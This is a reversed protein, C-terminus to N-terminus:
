RRLYYPAVLPESYRNQIPNKYAIEIVSRFTIGTQAFPHGYAIADAAWSRVGTSSNSHQVAIVSQSLFKPAPGSIESDSMTGVSDFHRNQLPAEHAIEIAARVVIQSKGMLYSLRHVLVYAGRHLNTGSVSNWSVLMWDM